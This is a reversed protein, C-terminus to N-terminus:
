DVYRSPPIEASGMIGLWRDYIQRWTGDGKAQKLVGNVFRVFDAREKAIGIGYPESTFKEGVVRTNPDQAALGALIVDDTSIADVRRLQFLVLCDSFQEVEVLTARPNKDRVNKSSTTGKASCIKQGDLDAISKAPSDKHVLIQQGSNYYVESFHIEQKRQSNITFTRVVMDVSGDKLAPIRAASPVSVFQIRREDGFIAKAMLRAIDIDFGELENTQPNLYGVRYLDQAVGVVLRGREHIMKMTSGEPMFGQRPLQALPRLSATVDTDKIAQASSIGAGLCVFSLLLAGVKLISPMYNM